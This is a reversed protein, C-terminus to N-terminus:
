ARGGLRRLRIFMQACATSAAAWWQAVGSEHSPDTAPRNASRREEGAPPAEEWDLQHGVIAAQGRVVSELRRDGNPFWRCFEDVTTHPDAGVLRAYERVYARAFIGYPWRRMDNHEFADWMDPPVKTARAIEDLTVGRQLRLRRLNPGFAERTM